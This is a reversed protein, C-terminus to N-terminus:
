GPLMGSGEMKGGGPGVSRMVKVRVWIPERRAGNTRAAAASMVTLLTVVVTSRVGLSAVLPTCVKEASRSGGPAIGASVKAGVGGM